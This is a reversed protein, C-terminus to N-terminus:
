SSTQSLLWRTRNGEVSQPEIFPVHCISQVIAAGKIVMISGFCEVPLDSGGWECVNLGWHSAICTFRLPKGIWELSAQGDTSNDTKMKAKKYMSFTLVM